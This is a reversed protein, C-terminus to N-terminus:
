REQPDSQQDDGAVVSWLALYPIAMDKHRASLGVTAAKTRVGAGACAWTAEPARWGFPM